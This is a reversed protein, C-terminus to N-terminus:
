RVGMVFHTRFPVRIGEGFEYTALQGSVSRVVAARAEESAGHFGAAMPTASVHRPVFARPHPLELDLQKTTAKVNRFGAADLLSLVTRLDSLAFAASLGAALQAGIHDTISQVLAQFYPNARLDCWVSVALRGGPRLVRYMQALARPRDELFQLVQACLVVDLEGQRFSLQNASNEIWEIPLHAVLSKAVEIMGANVDVGAVRGSPAVREAAYRAAAGTGCGVDLVAEGARVDSWEVLSHAAPGLIAPVLIQQYLEAADRALQWQTSATMSNCRAASIKGSTVGMCRM